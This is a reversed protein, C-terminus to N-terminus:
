AIEGGPYRMGAPTLLIGLIPPLRKAFRNRAGLDIGLVCQSPHTPADAHQNM